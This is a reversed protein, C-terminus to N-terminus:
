RHSVDRREAHAPDADAARQRTGGPAAEHPSGLEDDFLALEVTKGIGGGALFEVLKKATSTAEGQAEHVLDRQSHLAIDIEDVQAFDAVNQASFYELVAASQEYRLRVVHQRPFGGGHTAVSAM